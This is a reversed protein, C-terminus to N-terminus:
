SGPAETMAVQVGRTDGLGEDMAALHAAGTSYRSELFPRLQFLRLQGGVFGFEVDAAAPKGEDDVIPPFRDPLSDAFEILQRIEDPQLVTDSGSAPM